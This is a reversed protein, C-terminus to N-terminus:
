KTDSKEEERGKTIDSIIPILFSPCYLICVGPHENYDNYKLDGGRGKQLPRRGGLRGKM